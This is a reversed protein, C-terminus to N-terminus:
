HRLKQQIQVWGHRSIVEGFVHICTWRFLCKDKNLKLNAERNRHLVLVLKEEHDRGDADFGRILIYNAIGFVNPIDNFLKDIKKQFM